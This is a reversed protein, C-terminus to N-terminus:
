AHMEDAAVETLRCVIAGIYSPCPGDLNMM